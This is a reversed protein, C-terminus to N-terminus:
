DWEEMFPTLYDSLAELSFYHKGISFNREVMTKYKERNTLVKLTKQATKEYINEGVEVLNSGNKKDIRSGLSLVKLGRPAIDSIYVPYEFLIVPIKAKLAELLQNGWGEWYSPYTVIDAHSYSDWLSYRKAPTLERQSSIMSDVHIMKVQMKNAYEKLTNLYEGTKDDESYGALVLVIQTSPLITRGDYLNQGRLSPLITNMHAVVDIAMEIGKRPIIRTAQLVMIDEEKVGIDSRFDQNFSDKVFGNTNMADETFDFVNPIVEAHIGKREILNKQALSNIVVHKYHRIHPPFLTDALEMAIKCTLNYDGIREWYFDHHHALVRLNYRVVVKQLALSAAPHLAVSWVNEPIMIEISNKVIWDSLKSELIACQSYLDEEFREQPNNDGYVDLSTFMGRLIRSSEPTHYNLEVITTVRELNDNEHLGSCFFVTHGANELALKWKEMELSVGDTSGTKYHIMGVHKGM